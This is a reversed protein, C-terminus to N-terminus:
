HQIFNKFSIIAQEFKLVCGTPERILLNINFFRRIGLRRIKKSYFVTERFQIVVTILRFGNIDKKQSVMSFKYFVFRFDPNEEQISSARIQFFIPQIM